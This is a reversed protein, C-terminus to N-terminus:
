FRGAINKIEEIKTEVIEQENMGKFKNSDTGDLLLTGNVNNTTLFSWFNFLWGSHDAWPYHEIPAGQTAIVQVRLNNLLGIARDDIGMKYSFVKGAVMIHDMFNALTTPIKYNYSPSVIVLKDISKLKDIYKGSNEYSYFEEINTTNLNMQAMPEYNLDLTEIVDNPNLIGYEELFKKLLLESRSNESNAITTKLVLVKKM